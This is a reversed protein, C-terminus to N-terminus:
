DCVSVCTTPARTRRSHMQTEIPNNTQAQNKACERINTKQQKKEKGKDEKKAAAAVDVVQAERGAIAHSHQVVIAAVPQVAAVADVRTEERGVIDLHVFLSRPFRGGGGSWEGWGGLGGVGGSSESKGAGTM